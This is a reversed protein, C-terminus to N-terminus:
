KKADKHVEQVARFVGEDLGKRPARIGSAGIQHRVWVGGSRNGRAFLDTLHPQPVFRSM